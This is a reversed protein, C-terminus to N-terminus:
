FDDGLHKIINCNACLTQYGPPWGQKKLWEYFRWGSFKQGGLSRREEAGNDAVHDIQLARWDTFDCHACQKGYHELAESKFARRRQRAAANIKDRHKASYTANHRRKNEPTNRNTAM